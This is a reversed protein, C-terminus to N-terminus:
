KKQVFVLVDSLFLQIPWLMVFGVVPCNQDSYKDDSPVHTKTSKIM